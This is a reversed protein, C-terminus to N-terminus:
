LIKVAKHDIIVAYEGGPECVVESHEVAPDLGAPRCNRTLCPAFCGVFMNITVDRISIWKTVYRNCAETVISSVPFLIDIVFASRWCRNRCSVNRSRCSFASIRSQRTAAISLLRIICSSNGIGSPLNNFNLLDSPTKETSIAPLAFNCSAM